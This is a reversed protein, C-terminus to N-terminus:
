PCTLDHGRRDDVIGDGNRDTSVRSRGQLNIVLQQAFRPNRDPPCYVFNGDQYNTFGEATMQLYQRNRFAHWSVRAGPVPFQFRRLLRDKGDIRHNLNADIFVITGQQWSGGCTHGDKSPCLTVNTDYSVAASRTYIVSSVLWNIAVTAQSRKEITVLSPVAYGTLLAAIALCVLLEILTFGKM